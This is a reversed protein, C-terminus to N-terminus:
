KMAIHKSTLLMFVHSNPAEKPWKAMGRGRLLISIGVTQNRILHLIALSFISIILFVDEVYSKKCM